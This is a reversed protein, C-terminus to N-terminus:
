NIEKSNKFFLGRYSSKAISVSLLCPLFRKAKASVNKEPNGYKLFSNKKPCIGLYGWPM